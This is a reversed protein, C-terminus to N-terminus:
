GGKEVGVPGNPEPLLKMTWRQALKGYERMSGSARLLSSREVVSRIGRLFGRSAQCILRHMWLGFRRVASM